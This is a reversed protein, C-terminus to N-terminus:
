GPASGSMAMERRRLVVWAVLGLGAPYSVGMLLFAQWTMRWSILAGESLPALPDMAVVPGTLRDLQRSVTEGGRQFWSVQEPAMGPTEYAEAYTPSSVFYHGMMSVSIIGAAMFAAVPFTFMSGATLGLAAVLALRFLLILLARALNAEFFSEEIQIEVPRDPDFVAAGSEGAGATKFTVTLAHDRPIAPPMPIRNGGARAGAVHMQFAEGGQEEILWDGRIPRLYSGYVPSLRFLLSAERAESPRLSRLAPFRWVRSAGPPVVMSEMRVTREVAPAADKRHVDPSLTGSQEMEDLRTRVATSLDEKLPFIGRRVLLVNPISTDPDAPVTRAPSIDWRLFAHIVCGCLALLVANVAVLGLWKGIWIEIRYVPKSLVLRIQKEEVERSIGACSVWLTAIGLIAATFGLTYELLVRVWGALTGDGRIAAPLGFIVLLLLLLLSVFMRSRMAERWALSAIATIRRLSSM